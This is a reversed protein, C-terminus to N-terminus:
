THANTIEDSLRLRDLKAVELYGTLHNVPNNMSIDASKM